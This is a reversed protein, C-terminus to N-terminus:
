CAMTNTDILGYKECDFDELSALLVDRETLVKKEAGDLFARAEPHPIWVVTADANQGSEVGPIGDEFVLCESAQIAPQGQQAREENLSALCVQWIDPNPKGRGPPIRPDDGTVVHKGFLAFGDALHATKLQFNATNSSTGLAVPVGAAKLKQLLPLAGPLWGSKHWLTQQVAFAQDMFVQPDVDINYHALLRATAEPGPRGQLDLKIDWTLPGKGYQALVATAAETYIDETDLLTGDM